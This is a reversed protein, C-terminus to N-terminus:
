DSYTLQATSPFANERIRTRRSLTVTSLNNCWNFAWDGISVVSSPIIISKLSGCYSFADNGIATVGEPITVDAANGRYRVLVTGNMQFDQSQSFLSLPIFLTVCLLAATIIIKRKM